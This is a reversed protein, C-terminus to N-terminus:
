LAPGAGGFASASGAGEAVQLTTPWDLGAYTTQRRASWFVSEGGPEVVFRLHPALPRGDASTGGGLARLRAVLLDSTDLTAGSIRYGGPQIFVERSRCVVTVDLRAASPPQGAVGERSGGLLADSPLANAGGNGQSTTPATSPGTGPNGGPEALGRGSTAGAGQSTDGRELSSGSRNANPAQPRYAEAAETSPRALDLESATRERDSRDSRGGPIIETYGRLEEDDPGRPRADRPDAVMPFPPDLSIPEDATGPGSMAGPIGRPVPSNREFRGGGLSNTNPGHSATAGASYAGTPVATGAEPRKWVYLEDLDGAAGVSNSDRSRDRPTTALEPKEPKPVDIRWDQGILEYGFALDLSELLARADYYARVGDPRVLFLVYAVTPTGDSSVVREAERQKRLVLAPLPHSRRGMFSDLDSLPVFAGDPLVRVGGDSCDIVIPARWTGNSAKFPVVAYSDEAHRRAEDYARRAIDREYARQESEVRSESAALERASAQQAVADAQSRVLMARTRLRQGEARAREAMANTEAAKSALQAAKDREVAASVEYASVEVLITEIDIEPTAPPAPEPPAPQIPAVALEVPASAVVEADPRPRARRAEAVLWVTAVLAAIALAVPLGEALLRLPGPKAM